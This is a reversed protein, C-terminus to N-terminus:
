ETEEEDDELSVTLTVGQPMPIEGISQHFRNEIRKVQLDDLIIPETPSIHGFYTITGAVEESTIIVKM